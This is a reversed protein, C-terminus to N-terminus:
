RVVEYDTLNIKGFSNRVEMDLVHGPVDAINGGLDAIIQGMQDPTARVVATIQGYADKSNKLTHLRFVDYHQVTNANRGSTPTFDGVAHEIGVIEYKMKQVRVKKEPAYQSGRNNDGVRNKNTVYSYLKKAGVTCCSDKNVVETKRDTKAFELVVVFGLFFGHVQGLTDLFLEVQGPQFELVSASHVAISVGAPVITDDVSVTSVVRDIYLHGTGAAACPFRCVRAQRPLLPYAVQLRGVSGQM